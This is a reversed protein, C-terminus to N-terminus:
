NSPFQRPHRKPPPKQAPPRSPSEISKAHPHAPAASRNVQFKRSQFNDISSDFPRFPVAADRRRGSGTQARCAKMGRGVGSGKFVQQVGRWARYYAASMRWSAPASIVASAIVWITSAAPNSSNSLTYAFNNAFHTDRALWPRARLIRTFLFISPAKRRPFSLTTDSKRTPSPALRAVQVRKDIERVLDIVM